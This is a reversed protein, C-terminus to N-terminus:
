ASRALSPVSIKGVFSNVDTDPRRYTVWPKTPVIVGRNRHGSSAERSALDAAGQACGFM